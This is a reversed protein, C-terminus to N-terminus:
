SRSLLVRLRIKFWVIRSEDYVIASFLLSFIMDCRLLWKYDLCWGMTLLFSFCMGFKFKEFALLMQGWSLSWHFYPQTCFFFKVNRWFSIWVSLTNIALTNVTYCGLLLLQQESTTMWFDDDQAFVGNLMALINSFKGVWYCVKDGSRLTWCMHPLSQM